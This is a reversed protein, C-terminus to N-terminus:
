ARLSEAAPREELRELMDRAFDIEEDLSNDEREIMSLQELLPIAERHRDQELLLDSLCCLVGGHTMEDKEERCRTLAQRLTDEARRVDGKDLCFLAKQFIARARM